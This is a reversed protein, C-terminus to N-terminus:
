RPLCCDPPCIDHNAPRLGIVARQPDASMREVVLDYIMAIFKPHTGVTAARVMHMGWADTAQRAETDLDYLVEMHDSIFGIPMLIVDQVGDNHLEELFDVVDPELWPQHPPGSRSQYVLDWSEIGLDDAILRATEQLQDVYASNNAMASPISHATFVLRVSERRDEPFQSYAERLNATNAEIYLPHNYGFRLRDIRPADEVEQQADWINERYQRCGSYSSYMSTFFVLAREVGDDRMQRLTDPLLPHWNRNGWYVPLDLGEDAFKTELAAILQRNQENIPSVGNFLKYHESVEEIRERPINRGRLVNEMFPIVEDMGEPGGFSLILLADYETASNDYPNYTAPDPDIQRMM